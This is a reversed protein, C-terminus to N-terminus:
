SAYKAVFARDIRDKWRWVWDGEVTFAGRAAVAHRGGTTLIALAERQPVHRLLRRGAVGRVLNAALPPGQRVAHVGSKQRPHGEITACDGAAFVLPHSLSQLHDDIRVFGREDCALGSAALWPPAGAGTAWVVRDAPLRREGSAVGDATVADIAFGRHVDIAHERLIGALRARTVGNFGALVEADGTVLGIRVDAAGAARLHHRMALALEVGGAGAGAVVVTRLAGAGARAVIAEWGALLTPVPKVPLAHPAVGPVRADAVAGVDLSLVDFSLTTGGGLTVTRAAPDLATVRDAVFTAGARAALAALDIRMEEQTYHGAIFGPVMGTYFLEPEPTVLTVRAGAPPRRAFRRLVEIHSHGGGALLVHGGVRSPRAGPLPPVRPM